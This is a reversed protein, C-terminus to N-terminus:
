GEQIFRPMEGAHAAGPLSENQIITHHGEGGAVVLRSGCNDRRRVKISTLDASHYPFCGSAPIM